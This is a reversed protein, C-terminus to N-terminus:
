ATIALAYTFFSPVLFSTSSPRFSPAFETQPQHQNIRVISDCARQLFVNFIRNGNAYRTVSNVFRCMPFCLPEPQDFNVVNICSSAALMRCRHLLNRFSHFRHGDKRMDFPTKFGGYLVSGAIKSTWEATINVRVDECIPREVHFPEMSKGLWEKWDDHFCHSSTAM